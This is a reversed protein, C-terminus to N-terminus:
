CYCNIKNRRFIIIFLTYHIWFTIVCFDYYFIIFEFLSWFILLLSLFFSEIRTLGHLFQLLDAFFLLFQVKELYIYGQLFLNEMLFLLNLFFQFFFIYCNNKINQISFFLIHIRIINWFIISFCAIKKVM